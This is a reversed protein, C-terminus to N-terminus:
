MANSFITSNITAVPLSGESGEEGSGCGLGGVLSEMNYTGQRLGTRRSSEVLFPLVSKPVTGVGLDEGKKARLCGFDGPWFGLEVGSVFMRGGRGGGSPPSPEM